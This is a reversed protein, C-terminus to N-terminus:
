KTPFMSVIETAQNLAAIFTTTETQVLWCIILTSIIFISAKNTENKKSQVITLLVIKPAGTLAGFLLFHHLMSYSSLIDVKVIGILCDIAILIAAFLVITKIKL